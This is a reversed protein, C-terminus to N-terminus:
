KKKFFPNYYFNFVDCKFCKMLNYEYSFKIMPFKSQVDQNYIDVDRNRIKLRTKIWNINKYGNSDYNAVCM